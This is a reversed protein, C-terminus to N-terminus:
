HSHLLQEGEGALHRCRNCRNSIAPNDDLWAFARAMSSASDLTPHCQFPDHSHHRSQPLTAAHARALLNVWRRMTQQAQTGRYQQRGTFIRVEIWDDSWAEVSHQVKNVLMLRLTKALPKQAGTRALTESFCPIRCRQLSCVHRSYHM